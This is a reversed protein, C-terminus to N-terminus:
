QRVLEPREKVLNVAREFEQRTNINQFSLFESDYKEIEQQSIYKTNIQTIFYGIRYYDKNLHEAIYDVCSKSYVAHLSQHCDNILPVVLDYDNVPYESLYHLLNLNLFPMDCAVVLSFDSSSRTLGAHVGTLSNKVPKVIIDRTFIVPLNGAQEEREGVVIIEDFVKQLKGVIIELMTMGALTLQSKDKGMRKSSGGALVVASKATKGM